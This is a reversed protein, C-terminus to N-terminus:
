KSSNQNRPVTPAPATGGTGVPAPPTIKTMGASPIGKQLIAGNSSIKTMSATGVGEQIITRGIDKDAM